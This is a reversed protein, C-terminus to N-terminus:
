LIDEDDRANTLQNIAILSLTIARLGLRGAPIFALIGVGVVAWGLPTQARLVNGVAVILGAMLCLAVSGILMLLMGRPTESRNSPHAPLADEPPRPVADAWAADDTTPPEQGPEVWDEAM